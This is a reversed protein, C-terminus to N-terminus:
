LKRLFRRLASQPQKAEMEDRLERLTDLGQYISDAVEQRLHLRDDENQADFGNTEVPHGVHFFLPIPRPIPLGAVGRVIPFLMDGGRTLRNLYRNERVIEGLSSKMMDDGDFVIDLSDDAGLEAVPIIPYDHEIAMRVFGTRNKWVLGHEEGKRKAVERGGGPFVLVHHGRRMLEACNEPTGLVCGGTQLMDRWGPIAFHARDALSRLLHGRTKYIEAVLLPADIVGYVTHNAVWLAPRNYDVNDLGVYSPKFYARQASLANWMQPAPMLPHADIEM